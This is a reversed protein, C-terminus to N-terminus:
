ASVGIYDLVIREAQADDRCVYVQHGNIGLMGIFEIQADTLKGKASKFEIWLAASHRRGTPDELLGNPVPLCWDPVGPRVGEAKLKGAQGSQAGAGANPISFGLRLIPYKRELLIIRRVFAAQIQHESRSDRLVTPKRAKKPKAIKPFVGRKHGQSADPRTKLPNALKKPLSRSARNKASIVEIEDVTLGPLRTM